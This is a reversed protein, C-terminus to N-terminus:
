SDSKLNVSIYVKGQTIPDIFFANKFKGHTLARLLNIFELTTMKEALDLQCLDKFDKKLKLEGDAEPLFTSYSGDIITHLNDKLLQIEADLIRKYLIESTDTVFTDVLRRDIIPGHDIKTDIEHITAGISTNNIIAFVQPYWGRNIPNYGPHINICKMNQVLKDPFLQKCHISFVLDFNRLIYAISEKNKLNLVKFTINTSSNFDEINSFPSTAFSFTCNSFNNNEIIEIFEKCLYLNDSVILVKRYM